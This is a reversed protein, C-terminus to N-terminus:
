GARVLRSRGGKRGPQYLTAAPVPQSSAQIVRTPFLRDINRFTNVRQELTLEADYIQRITGIPENAHPYPARQQAAPQVLALTGAFTVASPWFNRTM